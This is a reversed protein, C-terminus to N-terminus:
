VYNVMSARIATSLVIQEMIAPSVIQKCFLLNMISNYGTFSDDYIYFPHSFQKTLECM